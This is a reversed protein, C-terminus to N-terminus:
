NCASLIKKLDGELIDDSVPHLASDTYGREGLRIQNGVLGVTPTLRDFDLSVVKVVGISKQHKLKQIDITRLGNGAIKDKVCDLPDGNESFLALIFTLDKETPNIINILHQPIERLDFHGILYSAVSGSSGGTGPNENNTNSGGGTSGGPPQQVRSLTVYREALRPAMEGRNNTGVSRFLLKYVGPTATQSFTNAWQADQTVGDNHDGDDELTVEASVGDPRTITVSVSGNPAPQGRDTLAAQLNLISGPVFSTTTVNAVMRYNSSVAGAFGVPVLGQVPQMAGQYGYRTDTLAIKAREDSWNGNPTLRLLWDGVYTSAQAPDPFVVRYVRYNRRQKEQIPIGGINVGPVLVQGDPAVFELDYFSRMVPDDLVIFTANRDSSIVTARDVIIPSTTNLNVIHTPDTVMDMDAASSFIKFYFAELDFLTEDSLTNTVQHYGDAGMNTINQLKEPEIDFGLGVSYLQVHSHNTEIDTIASSIDPTETERGDTLVVVVSGRDSDPGGVTDAALIMAGGIGTGGNPELEDIDFLSATSLQDNAIDDKSNETINTLPLYPASSANYKVMGLRDGASERLLDTYLSAANRMAEIKRQDGALDDMSGSRDLVLITDIPRPSVGEGTLLINTSPASDSNSTAQLQISHMGLAVPEYEIALIFPPDGPNISFSVPSTAVNTEFHVFDPSSNPTILSVEGTLTADGDNHLVLAKTFSFGREVEGFNLVEEAIRLVPTPVNNCLAQMELIHPQGLESGENGPPMTLALAQNLVANCYSGGTGDMSNINNAVSIKPFRGANNPGQQHCGTCSNIGEINPVALSPGANQPWSPHVLPDYWEDPMTSTRPIAPHGLATNPHLVFPNEGSHCATCTGGEGDLLEAGGAFNRLEPENNERPRRGAYIEVTEDAGIDFPENNVQNDWFCAKSTQRGLCIIGIALYDGTGDIIRPLAICIGEPANYVYPAATFNNRLIFENDLTGTNEWQSEPDNPPLWDPPSPVGNAACEDFYAQGLNFTSFLTISGSEESDSVSLMQRLNDPIIPPKSEPFFSIGLLKKVLRAHGLNFTRLEPEISLSLREILSARVLFQFYNKETQNHESLQSITSAKNKYEESAERSLRQGVMNLANDFYFNQISLLTEVSRDIEKGDKSFLAGHGIYAVPDNEQAFTHGFSLLSALLVLAFRIITIRM